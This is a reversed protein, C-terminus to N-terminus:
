DLSLRDPGGCGAQIIEDKTTLMSLKWGPHYVFVKEVGDLGHMADEGITASFCITPFTQPSRVIYSHTISSAGLAKTDAYFHRILDRMMDNRLRCEQATTGTPCLIRVGHDLTTYGVQPGDYRLGADPSAHLAAALALAALLM